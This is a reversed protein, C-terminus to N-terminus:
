EIKDRFLMMGQLELRHPRAIATQVGAAMQFRQFADALVTRRDIGTEDPVWLAKSVRTVKATPAPHNGMGLLAPLAFRLTQMDSLGPGVQDLLKGIQVCLHGAVTVRLQRREVIVLHHMVALMVALRHTRTGRMEQIPDPDHQAFRSRIFQPIDIAPRDGDFLCLPDDGLAIGHRRLHTPLVVSAVAARSFFRAGFLLLLLPFLAALTLLGAYLKRLSTRM